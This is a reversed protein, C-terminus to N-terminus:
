SQFQTRRSPRTEGEAGGLPAARNERNGERDGMEVKLGNEMRGRALTGAGKFNMSEFRLM